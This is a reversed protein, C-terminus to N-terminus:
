TSGFAGDMVNMFLFIVNLVLLSESFDLFLMYLIFVFMFLVVFISYVNLDMVRSFASDFKLVGSSRTSYMVSFM